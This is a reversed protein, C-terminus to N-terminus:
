NSLFNRIGELGSAHNTIRGNRILLITPDTVKLTNVDNTINNEEGIIIQNLTMATDVNYLPLENMSALGYLMGFNRNTTDMILVHYEEESRTFISGSLIETYNIVSTTEDDNNGERLEGTVFFGTYLYIGAIVVLVSIIIIIFKTYNIQDGFPELRKQGKHQKKNKLKIV